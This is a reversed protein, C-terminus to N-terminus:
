HFMLKGGVQGLQIAWILQGVLLILTLWHALRSLRPPALFVILVLVWLICWVITFNWALARHQQILETTAESVVSDRVGTRYSLLLSVIQAPAFGMLLWWVRKPLWKTHIAVIIILYAFPFLVAVALPLHVAASHHLFSM